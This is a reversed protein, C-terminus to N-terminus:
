KIQLTMQLYNGRLGNAALSEQHTAVPDHREESSTSHADGTLFRSPMSLSGVMMFMFIQLFNSWRLKILGYFM